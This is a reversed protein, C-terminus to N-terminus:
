NFGFFIIHKAIYTIYFGNKVKHIQYVKKPVLVVDDVLTFTNKASKDARWVQFHVPNYNRYFSTIATVVGDEPLIDNLLFTKGPVDVGRDSPLIHGGVDYTM